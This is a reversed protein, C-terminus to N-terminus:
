QKRGKNWPWANLESVRMGVTVLARKGELGLHGSM